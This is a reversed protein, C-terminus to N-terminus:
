SVAWLPAPTVVRSFRLQVKIGLLPTRGNLHVIERDALPSEHTHEDDVAISAVWADADSASVWVAIFQEHLDISLPAELGNDLAHDIVAKYAVLATAKVQADLATM